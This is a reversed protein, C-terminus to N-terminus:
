EYHSPGACLEKLFLKFEKFISVIHPNFSEGYRKIFEEAIIEGQEQWFNIPDDQDALIIINILPKHTIICNHGKAGKTSILVVQGINLEATISQIAAMFGGFIESHEKKFKTGIQQFEILNIGTTNHQILIIDLM